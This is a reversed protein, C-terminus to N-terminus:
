VLVERQSLHVCVYGSVRVLAIPYRAKHLTAIKLLKRLIDATPASGIAVGTDSFPHLVNM